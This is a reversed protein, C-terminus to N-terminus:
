LYLIAVYYLWTIITTSSVLELEQYALPDMQVVNDVDVRCLFIKYM